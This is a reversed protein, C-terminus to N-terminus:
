LNSSGSIPKCCLSCLMVSDKWVPMFRITYNLPLAESGNSVRLCPQTKAATSKRTEKGRSNSFAKWAAVFPCGIRHCARGGLLYCLMVRTHYVHKNIVCCYSNCCVGLICQHTKERMGTLVDSQRDTQLLRVDHSM